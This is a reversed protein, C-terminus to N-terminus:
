QVAPHLQAALQRAGRWPRPPLQAVAGGVSQDILNLNLDLSANYAYAMAGGLSIVPGGLGQAAERKLKPGQLAQQSAALRDSRQRLQQQPTAFDMPQAWAAPLGLALGFLFLCSRAIPRM